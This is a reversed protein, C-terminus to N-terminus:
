IQSGVSEIEWGKRVYFAYREKNQKRDASGAFQMDLVLPQLKGPHMRRIRGCIQDILGDAHAPASIPGALVLCSLPNISIGESFIQRSGAM